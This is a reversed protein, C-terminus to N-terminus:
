RRREQTRKQADESCGLIRLLHARVVSDLLEVVDHLKRADYGRTGHALDNRVLRLCEAVHKPARDDGMVELILDTKELTPTVDVPVGALTTTIASDLSNPPKKMLYKRLFTMTTSSLLETAESIATGRRESHAAVRQDFDQRTEFGYLGEIAQILLLFSSRPHQDPAFMLSAYTELLPHHEDILEQWRRLLALLSLDEPSVFFAREVKLIDNGRSSFPAQHLATGYVQFELEQEDSDPDRVRVSLYTIREKRGTSLAVIRRLPEVWHTFAKNFDVPETFTVLVIPSFTVRFFFGEPATVSSYFQFEVESTEDSWTQTSEPNGVAEWSWDLYRQGEKKGLPIKVKQIPAVGAIADIGEVQVGLKVIDLSETGLPSRGVLAARGHVIVRDSFWVEVVADVLVVHQGNLLRGTVLGAEYIQPFGAHRTGGDFQWSALGEGYANGRPPRDTRLELDGQLTIRQGAQTPVTWEVRYEGPELIQKLPVGDSM